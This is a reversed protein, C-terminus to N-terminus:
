NDTEISKKKLFIVEVKEDDGKSVKVPADIGHEKRAAYVMKIFDEWTLDFKKRASDFRGERLYDPWNTEIDGLEQMIGFVIPTGATSIRQIQLAAITAPSLRFQERLSAM